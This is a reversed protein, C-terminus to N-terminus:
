GQTVTNIGKEVLATIEKNCNSMIKSTNQVIGMLKSNYETMLDTQMKILDQPNKTENALGIEKQSAELCTNLVALQQEALQEIVHANIAGLEKISNLATKAINNWQETTNINM